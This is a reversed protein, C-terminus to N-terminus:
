YTVHETVTSQGQQTIIHKKATVREIATSPRQQIVIHMKEKSKNSLAGNGEKQKGLNLGVICSKVILCVKLSVYM